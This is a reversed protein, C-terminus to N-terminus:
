PTHPASRSHALLRDSARVDTWDIVAQSVTVPVTQAIRQPTTAGEELADLGISFEYQGPETTVLGNVTVALPRVGPELRASVERDRLVTSGQMFSVRMMGLYTVQRAGSHLYLGATARTPNATTSAPLVCSAAPTTNDCVLREDGHEGGARIDWTVHPKSEDPATHKVSHAACGAGVILVASGWAALFVRTMPLTIRRIRCSSWGRRCWSKWKGDAVCSANKLM